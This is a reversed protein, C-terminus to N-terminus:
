RTPTAERAAQVALAGQRRFSAAIVQEVLAEIGAPFRAGHREEDALYVLSHKPQDPIWAEYKALWLMLHTDLANLRAALQAASTRKILLIRYRIDSKLLDKM